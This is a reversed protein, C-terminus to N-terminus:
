KNSARQRLYFNQVIFTQTKKNVHNGAPQSSLLDVPIVIPFRNIVYNFLTHEMRLPSVLRKEVLILSQSGQIDKIYPVKTGEEETDRKTSFSSPSASPLIIARYCPERAGGCNTRKLYLERQASSLDLFSPEFNGARNQLKCKYKSGSTIFNAGM